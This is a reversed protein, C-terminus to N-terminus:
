RVRATDVGLKKRRVSLGFAFSTAIFVVPIAHQFFDYLFGSALKLYLLSVIFLVVVLANAYNARFIQAMYRFLVGQFLFVVLVGVYSFNWYVEGVFGAPKGTSPRGFIEQASLKGAAKPIDDGGWFARPIFVFPVSLYSKGYLYDVDTPVKGMIGLQGWGPGRRDQLGKMGEGVAGKIDGAIEVEDFHASQMTATRFEGAIGFFLVGIIAVIAIGKYPISRHQVMWVLAILLGLIVVESRSGTAAWNIVLAVGVLSWFSWRKIALEQYALWVVPVLVGVGAMFHFHGGIQASLRDEGAVGRQMLLEGIGGLHWVLGIVASIPVLLWIWSKLSVCIGIRSKFSRASVRGTLVYGVYIMALAMVEIAFHKILLNDLERRSAGPLAEHYPLGVSAFFAVGIILDSFGMWMVYFVLPHLVGPRFGPVVFPMALACLYAIFAVSVMQSGPNAPDMRIAFAIGGIIGM